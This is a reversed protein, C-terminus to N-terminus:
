RQALLALEGTSVLTWHEAQGGLTLVASRAHGPQRTVDVVAHWRRGTLDDDASPDDRDARVLEVGDAVPGSEGRALCTVVHGRAAAETAVERGLWATGGLVLVNAM